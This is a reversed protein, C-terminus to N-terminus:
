RGILSRLPFGLLRLTGLYLLGCGVVAAALLGARLGPQARLDVWEFTHAMGALAGAMLATALGVQLGFRLWGQQPQYSGRRILGLLLWLANMLAGL